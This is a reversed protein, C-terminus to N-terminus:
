RRRKLERSIDREAERKKIAERKDAKKKGRAIAIRLKIYRGKPYIELPIVALGKTEEAKGLEAIEKKSLLLRRNRTADFDGPTNKPQFPPIECNLLYAEGGRVTVHAGELKGRHARLSKVETGLLEIGAEFTKLLEFDFRARKRELYNTVRDHHWAPQSNVIFNRETRIRGPYTGRNKYM